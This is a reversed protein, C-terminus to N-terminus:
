SFPIPLSRFASTSASSSPSRKALESETTEVQSLASLTLRPFSLFSFSSFSFAGVGVHEWEEGLLQKLDVYQNDLVEQFGVVDLEPFLVQDVVKGRREYWRREGWRERSDQEGRKSVKAALTDAAEKFPYLLPHAASGDMRINFSGLRLTRPTYSHISTTRSPRLPTAPIPSPSSLWLLSAFTLSTILILTLALPGLSTSLTRPPTTRTTPAAQQDKEAM